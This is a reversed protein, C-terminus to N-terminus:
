SLMAAMITKLGCFVNRSQTASSIRYIKGALFAFSVENSVIISTRLSFITLSPAFCCFPFLVLSLTWTNVGGCFIGWPLADCRKRLLSLLLFLKIENKTFNSSDGSILSFQLYTLAGSNKCNQETLKKSKKYSEYFLASRSIKNQNELKHPSLWFTKHVFNENKIDMSKRLNRKSKWIQM